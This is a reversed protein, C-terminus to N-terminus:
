EELLRICSIVNNLAGLGADLKKQQINKITFAVEDNMNDLKIYTVDDFQKEINEITDSCRIFFSLVKEDANAMINENDLEWVINHKKTDLHRACDLMDAVVASATAEKGAGRGYFMADGLYNGKLMVANFVGDVSSLPVKQSVMMPSVRAYIKNDEDLEAYGILKIACNLAKAYSVDEATINVIGETPIENYDVCKGWAM